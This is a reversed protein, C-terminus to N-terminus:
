NLSNHFNKIEKTNKFKKLIPSKIDIIHTDSKTRDDIDYM